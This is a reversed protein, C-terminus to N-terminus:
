MFRINVLFVVTELCIFYLMRSKNTVVVKELLVICGYVLDADAIKKAISRVCTNAKCLSFLYARDQRGRVVPELGEFGKESSIISVDANSDYKGM